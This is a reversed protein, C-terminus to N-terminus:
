SSSEPLMVSWAQTGGTEFGDAFVAAGGRVQYVHVVGEGSSGVLREALFLRGSAEDFALGGVDPCEQEWLEAPDWQAVPVVQWPELSGTLRAELDAPDYILVRGTYPYGHYGQSDRCPDGCAAGSGYCTSGAKVGAVLVARGASTAVWDAGMWSDPSQYGPFDCDGQYPCGPYIERYYLLDVADAPNDPDFAFLTPGQSGGNAGAERSFGTVLTKAGLGQGTVWAAPLTFLYAGVKHPHFPPTRPGIEEITAGIRRYFVPTYDGTVNYWDRCTSAPEAGIAEVGSIDTNAAPCGGTSLPGELTAAVPLDEWSQSAVPAMPVEIRRVAYDYVHDTVWLYGDPASGLDTLNYSCADGPCEVRFAGLYSFDSPTLVQAAAPTATAIVLAATIVLVHRRAARSM